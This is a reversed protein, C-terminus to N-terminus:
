EGRVSCSHSYMVRSMSCRTRGIAGAETEGHCEGVLEDPSDSEIDLKGVAAHALEPENEVARM